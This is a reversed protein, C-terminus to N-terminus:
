FLDEVHVSLLVTRMHRGAKEGFLFWRPLFGLTCLLTEGVIGAQRMVWECQACDDKTEKGRNSYKLPTQCRLRALEPSALRISIPGITFTILPAQVHFPRQMKCTSPECQTAAVHALILNEVQWTLLKLRKLQSQAPAVYLYCRKKLICERGRERLSFRIRRFYSSDEIKLGAELASVQTKQVLDFVMASSRFRSAYIKCATPPEMHNNADLGRQFSVWFNFFRYQRETQLYIDRDIQKSSTGTRAVFESLSWFTYAIGRGHRARM